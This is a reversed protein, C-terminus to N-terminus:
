KVFESMQFPQGHGPFVTQVPLNKLREISAALEAADSIIASVQPHYYNQLIDGCILDGGETLIAISGPTHGPIHLVRAKFGDGSLNQGEELTLDPKFREFDAMMKTFRSKFLWQMMRLFLSTVRRDTLLRGSEVMGADAGHIAIKVGYKQRLYAGNGTHDIDGHTLIILDLKGPTCGSSEMEKELITRKDAFGTDVLIFGTETEVLYCNVAGLNIRKIKQPM